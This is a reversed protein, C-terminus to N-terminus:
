FTPPQERSGPEAPIRAHDASYATPQAAAGPDAAPSNSGANMGIVMSFAVAALLTPIALIAVDRSERSGQVQQMPHASM